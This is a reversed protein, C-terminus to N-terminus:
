CVLFIHFCSLSDFVFDFCYIVNYNDLCDCRFAIKKSKWIKPFPSPLLHLSFTPQVVNGPLDSPNTYDLINFYARAFRFYELSLADLNQFIDVTLLRLHTYSCYQILHDMGLLTKWMSSKRPQQICGSPCVQCKQQSWLKLRDWYPWQGRRGTWGWNQWPWASSCPLM